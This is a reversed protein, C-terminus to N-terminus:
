QAAGHRTERWQEDPIAGAKWAAYLAALQTGIVISDRRTM